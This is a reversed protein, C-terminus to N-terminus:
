QFLPVPDRTAFYAPVLSQYTCVAALPLNQPTPFTEGQNQTQINLRQTLM